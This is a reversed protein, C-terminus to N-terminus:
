AHEVVSTRPTAAHGAAPADVGRDNLLSAAATGAAEVLRLNEDDWFYKVLRVLVSQFFHREGLIAAREKLSEFEERIEAAREDVDDVGPGALLELVTRELADLRERVRRIRPPAMRGEPLGAVGRGLDALAKQQAMRVRNATAAALEEDLRVTWAAIADYLAELSEADGSDEAELRGPVAEFSVDLGEDDAIAYTHGDADGVVELAMVDGLRPKLSARFVFGDHYRYRVELRVESERRSQRLDFDWVEFGPHASLAESIGHKISERLM